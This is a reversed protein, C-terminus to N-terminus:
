WTIVWYTIVLDKDYFALGKSFNSVISGNNVNFDNNDTKTMLLDYKCDLIVIEFEYEIPKSNFKLTYEEYLDEPVIPPHLKGYNSQLSDTEFDNQSVRILSSDLSHIVTNQVNVLRKKISFYEKSSEKTKIYFHSYRGKRNSSFGYGVMNNPIKGPIHTTL